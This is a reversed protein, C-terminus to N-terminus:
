YLDGSDAYEMILCLFGTIEDFFAEKYAVINSSKISALIRVENLSNTKEKEKLKGIKCKKLAYIKGDSKRRV